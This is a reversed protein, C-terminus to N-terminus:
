PSPRAPGQGAQAKEIAKRVGDVFPQAFRLQGETGGDETTAIAFAVDDIHGGIGEPIEKGTDPVIKRVADLIAAVNAGVLSWARPDVAAFHAAQERGLAGDGGYAAAVRAMVAEEHGPAWVLLQAGDVQALDMVLKWGGLFDRLKALDPDKAAEADAEKRADGTLEISLRDVELGGAKAAGTAYSWTVYRRASPPLLAEPTAKQFLTRLAGFAAGDRTEAVVAVALPAEGSTLFVVAQHEGFHESLPGVAEDYAARVKAPDKDAWAAYARTMAEVSERYKRSALQAKRDSRSVMVASLDAPLRAVFAPDVPRGFAALAEKAMESGAPPIM